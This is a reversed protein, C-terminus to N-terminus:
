LGYTKRLRRLHRPDIGLETAAQAWTGADRHARTIDAKSITKTKHRLNRRRKLGDRVHHDGHLHQAVAHANSFMLRALLETERMEGDIYAALAEARQALLAVRSNRAAKTRWTGSQELFADFAPLDLLFVMSLEVAFAHETADSYTWAGRADRSRKSVKKM